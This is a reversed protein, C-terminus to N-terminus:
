VPCYKFSKLFDRIIETKRDYSPEEAITECLDHFQSFYGTGDKGTDAEMKLRKSGSAKESELKRKKGEKPSAKSAPSTTEMKEQSSEKADESSVSPLIQQRRTLLFPYYNPLLHLVDGVKMEVKKDKELVQSNLLSPNVGNREVFIKENEVTIKIQNRSLKKQVPFHSGLKEEIFKRGLSGEITAGAEKAKTDLTLVVRPVSYGGISEGEWESSKGTSIFEYTYSMKTTM